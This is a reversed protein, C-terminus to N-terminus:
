AATTALAARIDDAIDKPETTPAYRTSSRATAASSSSPSTGSSRAASCARRRARSGSSSRTRTTATSTSRPSCRSADRRLQGPLVRRDGGRHGAGPQRVPQVPLRARGPGRRAPGPLAAELGAYQPTFGCASATNVVLVVQGAYDSLDREDGTLTTATFDSITTMAMDDCPARGRGLPDAWTPRSRWAAGTGAIAQPPARGACWSAAVEGTSWVSGASRVAASTGAAGGSSTSTSTMPAPMAPTSTAQRSDRCQGSTTHATSSARSAM